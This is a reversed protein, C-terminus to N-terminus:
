NLLVPTGVRVRGYLDIMDDNVLRICGFAVNTGITKPANTGHIRSKDDDLELVRAGLPNGPAGTLTGTQALRQKVIDPPAEWPPWEAMRAVHRLGVLDACQGGIGIGYRLAVSNPQILYLFHQLKDIIVTGVPQLTRYFTPQRRFIYFQDADMQGGDIGPPIDGDKAALVPANVSNAPARSVLSASRESWWLAYGGACVAAIVLACAILDLPRSRSSELYPSQDPEAPLAEKGANESRAREVEIRKIAAELAAMERAKEAQMSPSQRARMESTLTRRARDYVNRRWRRDNAEATDIARWLIAYYDIM